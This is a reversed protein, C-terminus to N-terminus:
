DIKVSKQAFISKYIFIMLCVLGILPVAWVVGFEPNLTIEDGYLEKLKHLVEAKSKGEEFQSDIFSRMNKALETESDKITQGSCVLCRIENMLEEKEKLESETLKHKKEEM